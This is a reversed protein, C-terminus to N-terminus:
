KKKAPAKKPANPSEYKTSVSGTITQIMSKAAEAFQGDPKLELYKQFAEVTGPLPTIKGDASVQAKSVLYVGYQYQADAYNPDTDIAKKFAAGAPELQNSNVLLAGLNYYFKGAQAPDIQAAKNLEAQAEDFKKARALLLAYNNHYAADDGKLEIAKAWAAIAQAYLDTQEQGTKTAAAGGYADALSAWIVHQTPDMATASKLKEIAVDYQKATLADRGANFADNLAKNKSLAAQREKMQKEIAAKQAPTMDRAQEKTLEGTEAAKELAKAQEVKAKLDFNVVTPDGLKTRVNNVNDRDQGDIEVTVNFTGLPLGAHFYHGKKDTKVKYNGKIDTRVIKVLADKIGKGNEDKVDGELASTQGFAAVGFLLSISLATALKRVPFRGMFRVELETKMKEKLM